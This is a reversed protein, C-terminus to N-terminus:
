DIRCIDNIYGPRNASTRGDDRPKGQSKRLGWAVSAEQTVGISTCNTIMHPGSRLNRSAVRTCFMYGNEQVEGNNGDLCRAKGM